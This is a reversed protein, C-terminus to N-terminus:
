AFQGKSSFSPVVALLQRAQSILVDNSPTKAVTDGVNHGLAQWDALTYRMHPVYATRATDNHCTVQLLSADAADTVITNGYMIPTTERPGKSWSSWAEETGASISWDCKRRHATPICPKFYVTVADNTKRPGLYSFGFCTDSNNCSRKAQEVTMHTESSNRGGTVFSGATYTYGGGADVEAATANRCPFAGAYSNGLGLM